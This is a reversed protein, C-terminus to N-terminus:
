VEYVIFANAVQPLDTNRKKQPILFQGPDYLIEVVPGFDSDLEEIRTDEIVISEKRATKELNECADGEKSTRHLLLPVKFGSCPKSYDSSSSKEAEISFYGLM